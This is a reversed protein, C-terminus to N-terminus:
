PFASSAVYTWSQCASLLHPISSTASPDHARLPSRPPQHAPSAHAHRSETPLPRAVLLGFPRISTERERASPSPLPVAAGTLAPAPPHGVRRIAPSPSCVLRSTPSSMQQNPAARRPMGRTPYGFPRTYEQTTLGPHMAYARDRWLGSDLAREGSLAAQGRIDPRRFKSVSSRTSPISTSQAM